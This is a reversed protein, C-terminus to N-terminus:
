AGKNKNTRKYNIFVGLFTILSLLVLPAITSVNLLDDISATTTLNYIIDSYIYSKIGVGLFAAPIFHSLKVRLIGSSYNVLSHPFAPFIRLAFLTFFNDQKHLLKYAQSNEIKKIWEDTMYGSFFYAGIGGLTAGVALIFAAMAPPYLPAAVWFVLSGALAFTFLVTQLLILFVVLWWHDAYERAVLLIKGADLWGAFDLLLGVAILLIVILLKKIYARIM